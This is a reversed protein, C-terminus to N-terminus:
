RQRLASCFNSSCPKLIRHSTVQASIVSEYIVRAGALGKQQALVNALNGKARLTAPHEPGLRQEYARAVADYLVRAGKLDGKQVLTVGWQMKSRLSDPHEFQTSVTRFFFSIPLLLSVVVAFM